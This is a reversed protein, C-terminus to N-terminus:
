LKPFKIHDGVVYAGPFNKKLQIVAGEAEARTRFDGVRVKFNPLDWELYSPIEPYQQIFQAQIERAKSQSGVGSVSAIQIRFGEFELSKSDLEISKTVLNEIRADSLSIQVSSLSDKSLQVTSNIPEQACIQISFSFLLINFIHKM